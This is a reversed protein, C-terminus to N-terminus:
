YKAYVKDIGKVLQLWGAGGCTRCPALTTHNIANYMDEILDMDTDLIINKAAVKFVGWQEFQEQTMEGKSNNFPFANNLFKQRRSCGECQKIGLSSTFAKVVDGLGTMQPKNKIGKKRGM